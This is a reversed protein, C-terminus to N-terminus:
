AMVEVGKVLVPRVEAVSVMQGGDLNLWVAGAFEVTRTKGQYEVLDGEHLWPKIPEEPLVPAAPVPQFKPSIPRDGECIWVFFTAPKYETQNEATKKAAELWELPKEAWLELKSAYGSLRPWEKVLRLLFQGSPKELASTLAHMSVEKKKLEPSTKQRALASKKGAKTFKTNVKLSSRTRLKHVVAESQKHLGQESENHVDHESDSLIWQGRAPCAALGLEILEALLQYIYRSTVGLAQAIEEAKIPKDLTLNKRSLLILYIKVLRDPLALAIQLETDNEIRTFGGELM